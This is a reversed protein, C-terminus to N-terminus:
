NVLSGKMIGGVKENEEVNFDVNLFFIAEGSGLLVFMNIKQGEVCIMVLQFFRNNASLEVGVSNSALIKDDSWRRSLYRFEM